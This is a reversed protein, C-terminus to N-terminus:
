LRFEGINNLVMDPKEDDKLTPIVEDASKIKGSLVLVSKMGIKKAGLLDGMMDDSIITIDEFSKAGIMDKATSYFKLSPKGVVSYDRNTAFKIMSMIAGAGPYRKKDKVYISTDHMGILDVGKLAIEIMLSYDENTYEKNVSVILSDANELDHEFGLEELVKKFSDQGFAAVKQKKLVANLICFPDLYNKEKINFGLNQLAKLFEDSRFKTNNTIVIYPIKKENLLDIFEIAGEIPKRDKDDILTGQVDIFFM